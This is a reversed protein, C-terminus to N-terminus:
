IIDVTKKTDEWHKKQIVKEEILSSFEMEKFFDILEPTEIEDKLFRYAELDFDTLDM